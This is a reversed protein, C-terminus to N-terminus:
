ARGVRAGGPSTLSSAVQPAHPAHGAGRDPTRALRVGPGGSPDGPRRMSGTGGVAGTTGADPGLDGQWIIATTTQSSARQGHQMIAWAAANRRGTLSGTGRGDRGAGAISPWPLLVDHALRSGVRVLPHNVVV